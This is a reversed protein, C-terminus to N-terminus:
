TPRSGTRYGSRMLRNWSFRAVTPRTVSAYVPIADTDWGSNPMRASRWPVRKVPSASAHVATVNAATPKTGVKGPKTATAASDPRPEPAKWGNPASVTRPRRGSGPAFVAIDVETVPSVTPAGAPGGVPTARTLTKPM